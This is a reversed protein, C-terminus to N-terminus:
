ATPTDFQPRGFHYGQGWNVGMERLLEATDADEINEAITTIGQKRSLDVISQIMDRIKLNHRLNAIMWGEIKLFSVPLKALYLFSSYGSGFDDLALRFGSDLLPQIERMLLDFNAIYQRETIEFVLPKVSDMTVACSSCIQQTLELLQKVLDGRALFQPSLNIFHAFDPTAGADLRAACRMIAQRTISQDVLHILHLGEAAEIFEAAPAARGTRGVLRALAEDAVPAGSSLDVMIQYATVIRKDQLASQLEGAHWLLGRQATQHLVVRDRGGNKAEYLASDAEALIRAISKKGGQYVSVGASLTLDLSGHPTAIPHHAYAQRLRDIVAFAQPGDVKHLYIFFEEGGWRAIWDGDRMQALLIAAAQRLVTDGTEHGYHDNVLKFRDLDCIAIAFTEGSRQSRAFEESLRTEAARRNPLGTLLDSLALAKLEESQQKQLLFQGFWAALLEVFAINDESCATTLVTRRMFSLTGYLHEGVWIPTGIYVNFGLQTHLAHERYHADQSLDPLCLSRQTIAVAHSISDHLAIQWPTQFIGTADFLYSLTYHEDVEGVLATEMNMAATAAELMADIKQIENLTRDTALRWLARLHDQLNAPTSSPGLDSNGSLHNKM